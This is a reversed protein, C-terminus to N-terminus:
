DAGSSRTVSNLRKTKLQMPISGSAAQSASVSSIVEYSVDDYYKLYPSGGVSKIEVYTRCNDLSADSSMQMSYQANFANKGVLLYSFYAVGDDYSAVDSAITSKVGTPLGVVYSYQVGCYNREPTFMELATKKSTDHPYTYTPLSGSSLETM